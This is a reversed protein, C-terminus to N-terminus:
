KENLLKNKQLVFTLNHGFLNRNNRNCVIKTQKQVKIVCEAGTFGYFDWCCCTVGWNPTVFNSIKLEPLKTDTIGSKYTVREQLRLKRNVQIILVRFMVTTAIQIVNVVVRHIHCLKSSRRQQNQFLATSM